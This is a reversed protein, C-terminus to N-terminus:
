TNLAGTAKNNADAVQRRYLELPKGKMWSPRKWCAHKGARTKSAWRFCADRTLRGDPRDDCRFAASSGATLVGKLEKRVIFMQQLSLGLGWVAQAQSRLKERRSTEM